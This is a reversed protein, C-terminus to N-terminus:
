KKILKSTDIWTQLAEIFYHAMIILSSSLTFVNASAEAQSVPDIMQRKMENLFDTGDRKWHENHNRMEKIMSEAQWYGQMLETKHENKGLLTYANNTDCKSFDSKGSKPHRLDINYDRFKISAPLSDYNKKSSVFKVNEKKIFSNFFSSYIDLVEGLIAKVLKAEAKLNKEFEFEFEKESPWQANVIPDICKDQFEDIISKLHLAEDSGLYTDAVEDIQTYLKQKLFPWLQQLTFTMTNRTLKYHRYEQENM